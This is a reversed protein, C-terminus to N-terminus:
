LICQWNPSAADLAFFIAQDLLGWHFTVKYINSLTLPDREAPTFVQPPLELDRPWQPKNSLRAPFTETVKYRVNPDIKQTLRLLGLNATYEIIIWNATGLLHRLIAQGFGRRLYKDELQILPITLIQKSSWRLAIKGAKSGQYIILYANGNLYANHKQFELWLDANIAIRKAAAQHKFVSVLKTLM